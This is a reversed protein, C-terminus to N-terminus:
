SGLGQGCMGSEATPHNKDEGGTAMCSQTDVMAIQELKPAVWTKKGTWKDM